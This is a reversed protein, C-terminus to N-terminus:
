RAGAAAAKGWGFFTAEHSAVEAYLAQLLAVDHVERLDRAWEPRGKEDGLSFALHSIIYNIENTLPDLAEYASGGSLRARMVGLMQRERITLITNTFDGVWHKGRGDVWDFHFSWTKQFRPNDEPETKQVAEKVTEEVDKKLDDTNLHDMELRKKLDAVKAEDGAM